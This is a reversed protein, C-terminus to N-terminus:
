QLTVLVQIVGTGKNLPELAKGAVAGLMRSRDTGKMAYGARSSTVLMDGRAIAGNEATVKCPVIDVVALPVESSQVAPDDIHHPSALLGPKTSYIGAVLTGYAHDSLTLRRDSKADIELVDGPEYRSRKGRVALSEAFDAGSSQFGGDAYTVGNTDVRFKHVGNTMGLYINGGTADSVVGGNIGGGPVAEVDLAYDNFPTPTGIGVSVAGNGLM